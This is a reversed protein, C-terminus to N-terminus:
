RLSTLGNEIKSLMGLSLGSSHALDSVNIGLQKRLARVEIGIAVELKREGNGRVAHPNQKLPLKDLEAPKTLNKDIENDMHKLKVIETALPLYLSMLQM